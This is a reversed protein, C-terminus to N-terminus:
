GTINIKGGELYYEFSDGDSDYCRWIPYYTHYGQEIQYHNSADYFGVFTFYNFNVIAFLEREGFPYNETKRTDDYGREKTDLVKQLKSPKFAKDRLWAIGKQTHEKTIKYEDKWDYTHIDTQGERTKTYGNHRKKLNLIQQYTLLEQNLLEQTPIYKYTM